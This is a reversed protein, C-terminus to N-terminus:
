SWNSNAGFWHEQEKEDLECQEYGNLYGETYISYMKGVDECIINNEKLWEVFEDFIKM